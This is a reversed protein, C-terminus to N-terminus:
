QKRKNTNDNTKKPPPQPTPPHVKDWRNLRKRHTRVRWSPRLHREFGLQVPLGLLLERDVADGCVHLAREVKPHHHWRKQVRLQLRLAVVRRTRHKNEETKTATMGGEKKEDKRRERKGETHSDTETERGRERDRGTERERERDRGTERERERDRGTDGQTERDRERHTM